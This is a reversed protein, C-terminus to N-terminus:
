IFPVTKTISKKTENTISNLIQAIYAAETLTKRQVDYYVSNLWAILIVIVVKVQHEIGKMGIYVIQKYLEKNKRPLKRLQEEVEKEVNKLTKRANNLAKEMSEIFVREGPTLLLQKAISVLIDAHDLLTYINCERQLIQITKKIATEIIQSLTRVKEIRLTNELILEKLAESSNSTNYKELLLKLLKSDVTTTIRV